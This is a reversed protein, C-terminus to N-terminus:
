AREPVFARRGASSVSVLILGSTASVQAAFLLKASRARALSRQSAEEVLNEIRGELANVRAEGEISGPRVNRALGAAFLMGATLATIHRVGNDNQGLENGFNEIRDHPQDWAEIKVRGIVFRTPPSSSIPLSCSLAPNPVTM